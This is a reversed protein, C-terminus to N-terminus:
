FAINYYKKTIGSVEVEVTYIGNNIITNKLNFISIFTESETTFTEIIKNDRYVKLVVRLGDPIYQKMFSQLPGVHILRNKKSFSVDFDTIVQEFNLYLTNSESVNVVHAKIEWSDEYNPHIIKATAVGRITVASTKLLNGNRDKIVFEVYTGNSVINDYKDKLISTYLTVIQNGDAYNHHRKYFIDFHNSPSPRIELSLEKSNTNLAESSILIRGTKEKSYLYQYGILNKSYVKTENKATKYLKKISIETSDNLINDYPDTPITVLMSYHDEGTQISPPGLYSEIVNVQNVPNIYFKGSLITTSNDILKWNVAGKKCSLYKPIHYTLMYDKFEPQIITTGYSSSYYLYIDIPKSVSFTIEINENANYHQKKTLLKINYDHQGHLSLSIFIGLFLIVHTIQYRM